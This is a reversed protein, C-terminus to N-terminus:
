LSDGRIVNYGSVLAALLQQFLVNGFERELSRRNLLMYSSFFAILGAIAVLLIMFLSAPQVIQKLIALVLTMLGAPVFTPLIVEKLLHKFRIELLRMTYPIVFFLTELTSPIVTGIAIGTLGLSSILALSLGLNALGSGLSSLALLRHKEMGQLIFSASRNMIDLMSVYTLLTVLYSYQKYQPGVWASLFPKALLVTGAGVPLFIALAIRMGTKFLVRLRQWDYEANFQSSLPMLLKIFQEALLQSYGSLKHAIAYPTVFRVPMRAGIVIEDAQTQLQRSINIVFLASSFSAVKRILKPSAGRLGIKLDPAVRRIFLLAPIQMLIGIPINAAVVGVVGGGNSLIIVISIGFLLSGTISLINILDFRQLGELIAWTVAAPLSIALDIGALLVIWAIQSQEQDPINFFNPFAPAVIAVLVFVLLGLVLYISLATAVLSRATKMEGQTFYEAIYKTTAKAIGLDLLSGYAVLSAVLTWLGYASEGMRNLMFPTLFFWMGLNVVKGAYNSATNILM